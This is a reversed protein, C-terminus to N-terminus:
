ILELCIQSRSFHLSGLVKLAIFHGKNVRIRGVCFTLLRQWWYLALGAQVETCDSWARYQQSIYFILFELESMGPGIIQVKVEGKGADKTHVKFEANQKVRVGRPQIGRGTAYVAKPNIAPGVNVGYPSKPISKSSFTISISHLGVETSTYEVLVVGDKNVPSITPKIKDRHGAPDMIVVEVTGKGADTQFDFLDDTLQIM